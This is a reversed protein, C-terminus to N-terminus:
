RSYFLILALVSGLTISTKPVVAKSFFPYFFDTPLKIEYTPPEAFIRLPPNTVDYFNVSFSIKIKNRKFINGHFSKGSVKVGMIIQQPHDYDGVISHLIVMKVSTVLGHCSENLITSPLDHLIPAWKKKDTTDPNGLTSVYVNSLNISLGFIIDYIQM